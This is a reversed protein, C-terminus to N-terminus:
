DEGNDEAEIDSMCDEVIAEIDSLCDEVIGTTIHGQKALRNLIDLAWCDRRKRQLYLSPTEDIKIAKVMIVAYGVSGEPLTSTAGELQLEKFTECNKPNGHYVTRVFFVMGADWTQWETWNRAAGRKRPEPNDVSSLLKYTGDEIHM